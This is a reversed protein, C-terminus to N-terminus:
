CLFISLSSIIKEKEPDKLNITYEGSTINQFVINGLESLYSDIERGDRFLSARVGSTPRKTKRDSILLYLDCVDKAVKELELEVIFRETHKQATFLPYKEERNRSRIADVAPMDTVTFKPDVFVPRLGEAVLQIVLKASDLTTGIIGTESNTEVEDGTITQATAIVLNRCNLCTLLHSFIEDREDITEQNELFATLEEDTPCDGVVHVPGDQVEENKKLQKLMKIIDGYEENFREETKNSM